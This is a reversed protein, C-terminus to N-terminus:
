LVAEYDTPASSDNVVDAPEDAPFRNDWGEGSWLTVCCYGEGDPVAIASVDDYWGEGNHIVIETDGPLNATLERLQSLTLGKAM